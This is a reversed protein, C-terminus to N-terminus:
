VNFIFASFASHIFGSLEVAIIRMIREKKRVERERGAM